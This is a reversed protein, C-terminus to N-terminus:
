ARHQTPPQYGGDDTRGASPTRERILDRGIEAPAATVHFFQRAGDDHRDPPRASPKEFRM